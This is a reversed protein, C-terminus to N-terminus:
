LELRRSEKEPEFGNKKRLEQGLWAGCRAKARLVTAKPPRKHYDHTRELPVVNAGWGLLRDRSLSVEATWRLKVREPIM